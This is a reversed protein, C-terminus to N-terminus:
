INYKQELKRPGRILSPRAHTRSNARSLEPTQKDKRRIRHRKVRNRITLCEALTKGACQNAEIVCKIAPDNLKHAGLMTDNETPARTHTHAHKVLPLIKIYSMEQTRQCARELKHLSLCKTAPRARERTTM